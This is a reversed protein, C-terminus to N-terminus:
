SHVDDVRNDHRHKDAKEVEQDRVVQVLVRDRVPLREDLSQEEKHLSSIARPCSYDTYM